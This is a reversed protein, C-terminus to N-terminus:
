SSLIDAHTVLTFLDQNITSTRANDESQSTTRAFIKLHLLLSNVITLVHSHFASPLTLTDDGPKDGPKDGLLSALLHAYKTKRDFGDSRAEKRGIEMLQRQEEESGGFFPHQYVQQCIVNGIVAGVLAHRKREKAFLDYWGEEGGPGGTAVCSLIKVTEPTLQAFQQELDAETVVDEPGLGYKAAVAEIKDLVQWLGDQIEADRFIYLPEYLEARIKRPTANTRNLYQKRELM